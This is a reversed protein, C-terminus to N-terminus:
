VKLTVTECIIFGKDKKFIIYLIKEKAETVYFYIILSAVDLHQKGTKCVFFM